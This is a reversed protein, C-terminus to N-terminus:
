NFEKEKLAKAAKFRQTRSWDAYICYGLVTPFAVSIWNRRFLYIARQVGSVKVTEGSM